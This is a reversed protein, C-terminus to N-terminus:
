RSRFVNRLLATQVNAISSNISPPLNKPITEVCRDNGRSTKSLTAREIGNCRRAKAQAHFTCVTCLPTFLFLTFFCNNLADARHHQSGTAGHLKGELHYPPAAWRSKIGRTIDAFVVLLALGIFRFLARLRLIIQLHGHDNRRHLRGTVNGSHIYAHNM